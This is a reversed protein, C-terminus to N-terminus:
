RETYPMADLVRALTSISGLDSYELKDFDIRIALRAELELMFQLLELSDLGIDNVLDTSDSLEDAITPDARLESLITKIARITDTM